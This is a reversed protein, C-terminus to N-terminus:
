TYEYIGWTTDLTDFWNTSDPVEGRPRVTTGVLSDLDVDARIAWVRNGLGLASYAAMLGYENLEGGHIPTGATTQRFKPAGFTTVLDRQSSIGFVKGANAKKTGSAVSNNIIKDQASAFLVFPITGVATPLYASEDSVTISIGPSVLAAM